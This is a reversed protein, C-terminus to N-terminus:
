PYLLLRIRVTNSEPAVMLRQNSSIMVSPRNSVLISEAEGAATEPVHDERAVDYVASCAVVSVVPTSAGHHAM